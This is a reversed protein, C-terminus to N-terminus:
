IKQLVFYHGPNWAQCILYLQGDYLHFAVNHMHQALDINLDEKPRIVSLLQYTDADIILIPAPRNKDPDNLCAIAAYWRDQYQVYDIGCLFSGPLLRHSAAFAGEVDHVQIRSNPRDTIDLKNHIPNFGIGHATTFKGDEQPDETKGGFIHNWEKTTVNASVVHNSGYGDAIYLQDGVVVTDTPKYPNEIPGYENFPPRPLVYDIKGDLTIVCVSEDNNASLVLRKEGGIEAITTGHFNFSEIQKPLGIVNQNKLDPDISIIGCGPMGYYVTNDGTTDTAFGGHLDVEHERTIPPLNSLDERHGFVFPQDGSKKDLTM